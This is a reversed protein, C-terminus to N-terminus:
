CGHSHSLVADFQGGRDFRSAHRQHLRKRFPRGVPQHVGRARQVFLLQRVQQPRCPSDIAGVAAPRGRRRQVTLFDINVQDAAAVRVAVIRGFVFQDAHGLAVEAPVDVRLVVRFCAVPNQDIDGVVRFHRATAIGVPGDRGADVGSQDRLVDVQVSRGFSQGDDHVHRDVAVHDGARQLESGRLM